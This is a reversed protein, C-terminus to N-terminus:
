KKDRESYVNLMLWNCFRVIKDDIKTWLHLSGPLLDIRSAEDANNTFKIRLGEKNEYMYADAVIIYSGLQRSAEEKISSRSLPFSKRFKDVIISINETGYKNVEYIKRQIPFHIELVVHYRSGVFKSLENLKYYVLSPNKIVTKKFFEQNNEINNKLDEILRSFEDM